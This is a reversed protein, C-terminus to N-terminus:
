MKNRKDLSIQNRQYCKIETILNYKLDRIVYEKELWTINSNESLM